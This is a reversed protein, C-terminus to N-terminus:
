KRVKQNMEDALKRTKRDILKWPDAREEVDLEDVYLNVTQCLILRLASDSPTMVASYNGSILRWLLESDLKWNQGDALWKDIKEDVWDITLSNLSAERDLQKDLWDCLKIVLLWSILVKDHDAINMKDVINAVIRNLKLRLDVIQEYTVIKKNMNM